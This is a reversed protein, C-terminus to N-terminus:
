IECNFYVNKVFPAIREKGTPIRAKLKFQLVKQESHTHFKHRKCKIQKSFKWSDHITQRNPM